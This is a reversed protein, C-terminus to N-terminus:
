SNRATRHILLVERATHTAIGQMSSTTTWWRRGPVSRWLRGDRTTSLAPYKLEEFGAENMTSLYRLLQDRGDNFGVMQVVITKVSAITRLDAFASGLRDFYLDYTPGSKASMTYSSIGRGDACNAIWYPARIERRGRMKWRHYNVYVGPYPPSTLILDPAEGDVERRSALGPAGQTLIMPTHFEEALEDAFARAATLMSSAQSILGTRFEQVSPIESRMDLAWQATRLVTCRGFDRQRAAPLSELSELALAILSRIRWTDPADLDKLYGEDRWDDLVPTGRRLDLVEELRGIWKRLVVFDPETLITTKVSSVFTALENVDAGISRRGLRMAEVLTTGGGVFPDLVLDGPKSFAHIASRAFEPSFRAPYRYFEHPSRTLRPGISAPRQSLAANKLQSLALKGPSVFRRLTTSGAESGKM